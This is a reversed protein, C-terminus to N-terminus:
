KPKEPLDPLNASWTDVIAKAVDAIAVVSPHDAANSASATSGDTFIVLVFRGKKTRLIGSDNRVGSLSGTKGAWLDESPFRRAARLRSPEKDLYAFIRRSSEPDLLEGTAVREYWLAVDRPSLAGLRFGKWPSLEADKSSLPPITSFLRIHDFGLSKMRANIPEIGLREIWANTATNDSPGIMLTLLDSWTPELGPDLILLVGSGDAKERETLTWRQSLDARGERVAAMAETLVAIKTVSAGEFEADALHAYSRGSELHKAAVGMRCACRASVAAVARDIPADAKRPATACGAALVLLCLRPVIRRWARASM